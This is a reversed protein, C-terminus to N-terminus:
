KGHTQIVQAEEIHKQIIKLDTEISTYDADTFTTKGLGTTKYVATTRPVVVWVYENGNADQIVLGTDITGEKKQLHIIQSTHHQKQRQKQQYRQVQEVEELEVMEAVVELVEM